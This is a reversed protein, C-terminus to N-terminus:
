RRTGAGGVGDARGAPGGAIGKRRQVPDYGSPHGGVIRGNGVQECREGCGIGSCGEPSQGGSNTPSALGTHEALRQQCSQSLGEEDRHTNWGFLQGVGIPFLHRGRHDGTCKLGESRGQNGHTTSGIRPDVELDCQDPQGRGGRGTTGVLRNDLGKCPADVLQLLGKCIGARGPGPCRSRWRLWRCWM